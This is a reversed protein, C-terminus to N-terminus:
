GDSEDDLRPVGSVSVNTSLAANVTPSNAAFAGPKTTIFDRRPVLDFLEKKRDHHSGYSQRFQAYRAEIRERFDGQLRPKVREDYAARLEEALTLADICISGDAMQHLHEGHHAKWVTFRPKPVFLHALGDRVFQYILDAMQQREPHQPYMFGQWFERFRQDGHKRNFRDATLTGLLEVGALTTMVMPYGVGGYKQGEPVTISAMSRLDGFLYGEVFRELFEDLTMSNAGHSNFQKVHAEPKEGEANESGAHSPRVALRIRVRRRPTCPTTCFVHGYPSSSDGEGVRRSM